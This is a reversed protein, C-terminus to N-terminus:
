CVLPSRRSTSLTLSLFNVHQLSTPNLTGHFPVTYISLNPLVRCASPNASFFQKPQVWYLVICINRGSPMHFLHSHTCNNHLARLSESGFRLAMFPLVESFNAATRCAAAIRLKFTVTTWHMMCKTRIIHTRLTYVAAFWTQNWIACSGEIKRGPFIRFTLLVRCADSARTEGTRSGSPSRNRLSYDLYM